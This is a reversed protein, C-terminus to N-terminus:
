FLPNVCNGCANCERCENKLVAVPNCCNESLNKVKNDELVSM